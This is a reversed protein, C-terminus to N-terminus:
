ARSEVFSQLLKFCHTPAEDKHIKQGVETFLYNEYLIIKRLFLGSEEQEIPQLKM